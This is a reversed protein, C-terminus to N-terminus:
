ELFGKEVLNSYREAAISQVDVDKLPISLGEAEVAVERCLETFVERSRLNNILSWPRDCLPCDESMRGDGCYFCTM